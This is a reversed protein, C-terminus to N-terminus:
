RQGWRGNSGTVKEVVMSPAVWRLVSQLSGGGLDLSTDGERGENGLVAWRGMAWREGGFGWGVVADVGEEGVGM